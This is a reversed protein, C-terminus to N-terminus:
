TMESLPLAAPSLAIQAPDAVNSMSLAVVFCTATCREHSMEGPVPVMWTFPVTLAHGRMSENSALGASTETPPESASKLETTSVSWEGM